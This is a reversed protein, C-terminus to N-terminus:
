RDTLGGGIFFLGQQSFTRLGLIFGIMAGSAALNDTMYTALFPVVLYFGVNFLMQTVLLLQVSLPLRLFRLADHLMSM